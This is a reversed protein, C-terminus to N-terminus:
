PLVGLEDLSDHLEETDRYVRFAGAQSLEDAGYGGSLLGVGLMNARRAALIDWVADGVAYCDEVKMGLKKQCYLFLDPEPKARKVDAHTVVLTEDGVGLTKLAAKIDEREGSTAIAHPIKESRFYKLLEVAGPLPRPHPLYQLYLEGHRKKLSKQEEENLERGLERGM